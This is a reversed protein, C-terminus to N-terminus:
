YEYGGRHIIECIKRFSRGWADYTEKTTLIVVIEVSYIGFTLYGLMMLVSHFYVKYSTPCQFPVLSKNTLFQPNNKLTICAWFEELLHNTIPENRFQTSQTIFIFSVTFGVQIAFLIQRIEYSKFKLITKYIFYKMVQVRYISLAILTLGGGTLFWLPGVALIFTSIGGDLPFPLLPLRTFSYKRHIALQGFPFLLPLGICIFSEGIMFARTKKTSKSIQWQPFFIIIFINLAAIFFCFEFAIFSYHIVAGFVTLLLPPDAAVTEFDENRLGCFFRHPGMISIIFFLVSICLLSIFIYFYIIKPFSLCGPVRVFIIIGVVSFIFNIVSITIAITRYSKFYDDGLPHWVGCIPLCMPCRFVYLDPCTPVSQNLAQFTNSQNDCMLNSQKLQKLLDYYPRTINDLSPRSFYAIALPSLISIWVVAISIILLITFCIKVVLLKQKFKLTQNNAYALGDMGGISENMAASTTQHM